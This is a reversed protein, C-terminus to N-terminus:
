RDNDKKKGKKGNGSNTESINRYHNIKDLAQELMFSYVMDLARDDPPDPESFMGPRMYNIAGKGVERIIQGIEENNLRYLTSFAEVSIYFGGPDKKQYAM